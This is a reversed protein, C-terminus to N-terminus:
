KEIYKAVTNYEASALVYVNKMGVIDARALKVYTVIPQVPVAGSYLSHHAVGTSSSSGVYVYTGYWKNQETLFNSHLFIDASM